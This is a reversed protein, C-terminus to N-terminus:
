PHRRVSVEGYQIVHLQKKEDLMLLEGRDNIGQAVGVITKEPMLITITEGMFCDLKRWDDSFAKLGEQQYNPLHSLLGNVLLGALRNREVTQGSLEAIDIREKIKPEPLNTNLGIGIVVSEGTKELLIGALKRDAFLVDNPWKLQLGRRIGYAQLVKVAIVGIVISLGSIDSQKKFKWLLSCAITAGIPSDWARGRRGRGATQQEAFCFSGSPCTKAKELLIQNTSSICDFIDLEALYRRNMLTVESLIKQADLPEFLPYNLENNKM